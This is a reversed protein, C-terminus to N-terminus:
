SVRQRPAHSFGISDRDDDTTRAVFIVYEAPIMITMEHEIRGGVQDPRFSLSALGGDFTLQHCYLYSGIRGEHKYPKLATGLLEWADASLLVGWRDNDSGM